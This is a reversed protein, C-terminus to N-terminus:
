SSNIQIRSFGHNRALGVVYDILLAGIGLGRASPSVALTSFTFYSRDWYEPRPTLALALPRDDHDVAVWVHMVRSRLSLTRLNEEYHPDVWCGTTFASVLIDELIPYEEPVAERISPVDGSHGM